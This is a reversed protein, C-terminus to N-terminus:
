LIKMNEEWARPEERKDADIYVNFTIQFSSEAKNNKKESFTRPGQSTGCFRASATFHSFERRSVQLTSTHLYNRVIKKSVFNRPHM